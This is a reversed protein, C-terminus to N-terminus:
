KEARVDAVVHTQDIMATDHISHIPVSYQPIDMMYQITISNM